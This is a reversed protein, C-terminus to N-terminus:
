SSMIRYTGELDIRTQELSELLSQYDHAAMSGEMSLNTAETSIKEVLTRIDNCLTTHDNRPVPLEQFGDEYDDPYNYHQRQQPAPLQPYNHQPQPRNYNQILNSVPIIQKPQAVVTPVVVKPENPIVKLQLEKEKVEVYEGKEWEKGVTSVSVGLKFLNEETVVQDEKDIRMYWVQYPPLEVLKQSGWCVKKLQANAAVARYWIDPSSFWFVQGLTHRLDALWLPRKENRFLLLGRQNDDIREGITVAMAGISVVSWIDKIANVRWSVEDPVGPIVQHEKELGHEYMRLLYESDTDSLIQYKEKLFDAEELTGNHALAVRLDATVFPHNNENVSAHGGGKSTARAHIILLDLKVKKMKQWFDSKIFESSRVPEKHYVVRGDKGPETGWLGSADTGRVELHDFLNTILEYTLKPKKSYGIYGAIGCM